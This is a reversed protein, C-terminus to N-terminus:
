KKYAEIYEEKTSYKKYVSNGEMVYRILSKEKIVDLM